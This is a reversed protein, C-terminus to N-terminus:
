FFFFVLLLFFFPLFSFFPTLSFMIHSYLYVYLWSSSGQLCPPGHLVARPNVTLFLCDMSIGLQRAPLILFVIYEPYEPFSAIPPPNM